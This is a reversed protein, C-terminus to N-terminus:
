QPDLSEPLLCSLSSVDIREDSTATLYCWVSLVQGRSLAIANGRPQRGPYGEGAAARVGTALPWVHM